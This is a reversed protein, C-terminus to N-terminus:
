HYMWGVVEAAPITLGYYERISLAVARGVERHHDVTMYATPTPGYNVRSYGAELLLALVGYAMMQNQRSLRTDLDGSLGLTPNFHPAYSNVLQVLTLCDAAYTAPTPYLPPQVSSTPHYSYHPFEGSTSHFDAFFHYPHGQSVWQSIVLTVYYVEPSASPSTSNWQRNLDLGSANDRYNGFVVGDPNVMPVLNFVAGHRLALAEPEESLLFDIFGDMVYSGTVEAAHQRSIIWVGIKGADPGGPNDTIRLRYLDRGQVSQGIVDAVCDPHASWEHVRGQLHTWTYPYHFAVRATDTTFTNTFSYIPSTFSITGNNHVWTQGGDESVVPRAYTWHSPVNTQNTNVIRLTLTQGAAGSVEFYYWQRDTSNYDPEIRTDYQNTGSLTFATANGSEFDSRFTVEASSSLPLALVAAIGALL